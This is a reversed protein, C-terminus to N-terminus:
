LPVTMQDRISNNLTSKKVKKNNGGTIDYIVFEDNDEMTTKESQGNIDVTPITAIQSDMQWTNNYFTVM